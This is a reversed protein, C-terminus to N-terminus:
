LGIRKAKSELPRALSTMAGRPIDKLMVAPHNLKNTPKKPLTTM